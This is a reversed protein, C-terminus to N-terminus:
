NPEHNADVANQLRQLSLAQPLNHVECFWVQYCWRGASQETGAFSITDSACAVVEPRWLIGLPPAKDGPCAQWLGLQPRGEVFQLRLM